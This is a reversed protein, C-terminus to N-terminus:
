RPDPSSVPNPGWHDSGSVTWWNNEKWLTWGLPDKKQSGRSDDQVVVGPLRTTSTKGKKTPTM